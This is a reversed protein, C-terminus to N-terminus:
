LNPRVEVFRKRLLRDDLILHALITGSRQSACGDGYPNPMGAIAARFSPSRALRLAAEVPAAEFAASIVNSPKLRGTQRRGLDLVPVPVSAAEILGSSSNGVVVGVARLADPYWEGLTPIYVVDDPSETAWAQLETLIPQRGQDQNPATLIARLGVAELATRVAQVAATGNFTGVTEPHITVLAADEGFAFGFRQSLLEHSVPKRGIFADLGPAGTVHVRWPEEGMQLLRHAHLEASVFHVHALKSIAHRIADDLAGESIEGGHVHVLPLGLQVTAFAAPLTEFRDGLVLVLDPRVAELAQGVACLCNAASRVFASALEGEVHTPLLVCRDGFDDVVQRALSDPGFHGGCAVLRADLGEAECGRALARILFYDSRGTSILAM